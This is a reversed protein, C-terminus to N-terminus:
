FTEICGNDCAAPDIGIVAVLSISREIVNNIVNSFCNPVNIPRSKYEIYSLWLLITNDGYLEEVTM